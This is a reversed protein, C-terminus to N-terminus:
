TPPRRRLRGLDNARRGCSPPRCCRNEEPGTSADLAKYGSLGKLFAESWGMVGFQARGEPVGGSVRQSGGSVGQCEKRTVGTVRGRFGGGSM